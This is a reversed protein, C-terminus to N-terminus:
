DKALAEMRHIESSQQAVVDNAMEEVRLNNGGALVEGAMDIAGEHHTTMLTLFLKDFDEGRSAKLRALQAGTAMGPMAGHEHKPTRGGKPDYQAQWGKMADIEPGQTAAIREALAKVGASSARGPALASLEIAQAHHETMMAVYRFDATNPRDDEKKASEAEEPSLTRAAEGPKGPVIVSSAKAGPTKAGGDPEQGGGGCAALGLCLALPLAWRAGRAVGRVGWPAGPPGSSEM